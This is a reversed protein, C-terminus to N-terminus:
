LEHALTALFKGKRREADRVAQTVGLIDLSNPYGIFQQNFAEGYCKLSAFSNINAELFNSGTRMDAFVVFYDFRPM